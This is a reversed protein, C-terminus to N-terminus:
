LQSGKVIPVRGLYIEGSRGDISIEDGSRVPVDGISCSGGESDCGLRSCGVVCTKGLRSAVIAAHSTSGGRATLLGDAASIEGIDDPATDQRVLILSTDPEEARWKEVDARSFVARGSMAAGGAGLGRCLLRGELAKAAPDFMAEVTREKFGMDRAQLIFFDEARPGEFTFEIDQPGWGHEYVLRKVKDTMARYVEPFLDELCPSDTRDEIQAQKRNVPLTRETGSVVDEGQGGPVFDGWLRIKDSPFLPSHTFIVGAGSSTSRNGFVMRQVVVATGWDDSIGMLSRYTRAKGSEWTDMVKGVATFLIRYPDDYLPIGHDELVRRCVMAASRVSSADRHPSGGDRAEPQAAEFASRSLGHLIGWGMLFRRWCDWSFWSGDADGAAQEMARVTPETLGVNLVTEMMGPQSVAAGSRVSLLLPKAPDGFKLGTKSELRNVASVIRRELDERAPGFSMLPGRARYAETTIIFGPPVPLGLGTLRVLNYGKNGLYVVDNLEDPTDDFPCVVKDPDYRLLVDSQGEALTDASAYLAQRFRQVFRDLGQVGPATAIRERLFQEGVGNAVEEPESTTLMRTYRPLIEERKMGRLVIRLNEAYPRHFFLDIVKGVAAALGNFIDVYQTLTIGHVKTARYLVGLATDFEDSVIGDTALTRRFLKLLERARRIVGGTIMGADFGEVLDDLIPNLVTELRLTLGLSDFKREHYSGYMSPIDVAIHRKLYIDELASFREPSLITEKLRELYALVADARKMPDTSGLGEILEPISQFGTTEYHALQSRYDQIGRTYKQHLLRYLRVTLTVRKKEAEGVGEMADIVAEIEEDRLEIIRSPDDLGKKEMVGALVRHAGLVYSSQPNIWEYLSPPIFPRLPEKDLTSWFTLTAEALIMTLNSSDVHSQKRLFHVLEDKRRFIEDLDTSIDRLLGEAGIENFYVPLLRAFQKVLPYVPSVETNLLDTIERPFLDTDRVFVGGVALNVTLASLLRRARAPDTRILALWVRINKLHATNALVQWDENVGTIDPHQFGFGISRELFLDLLDEKKGEFVEKGMTRICELAAQPYRRSSKKLTDFTKGLLDALTHEEAHSILRSVAQNLERLAEEHLRALPPIDVIRFLFVLKRYVRDPSPDTGPALKRPLSRYVSVWHRFAPLDQLGELREDLSRAEFEKLLALHNRIAEHSVSDLLDAAEGEEIPLGTERELWPKPDEEKLWYRYLVTFLRALVQSCMERDAEEGARALRALYAEVTKELPYYGSVALFFADDPLKGIRSLGYATVPLFGLSGGEKENTLRDLFIILNDMAESRVAADKPTLIADFYIDTLVRAAEGGRPSKVLLHLHKFGYTRMGELIFRWNKMPHTIECVFAHSEEVLGAYDAIVDLLVLYKPDISDHTPCQAINAALAQSRIPLDDLASQKVNGSRTSDNTSPPLPRRRKEPSVAGAIPCM